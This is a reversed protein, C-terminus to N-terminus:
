RVLFMCAMDGVGDLRPVMGMYVKGTTCFVLLSSGKDQDYLLDIDQLGKNDKQNQLVRDMGWQAHPLERISDTAVEETRLVAGDPGDGIGKSSYFCPAALSLANFRNIELYQRRACTVSLQRLGYLAHCDFLYRHSWQFRLSHNAAPRKSVVRCRHEEIVRETHAV